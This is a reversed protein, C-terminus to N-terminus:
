IDTRWSHDISKPDFRWDWEKRPTEWDGYNAKLYGKTDHPINWIEDWINLRDFSRFHSEGVHQPILKRDFACWWAQGDRFAKTWIDLKVGNRRLSYEPVIPHSYIHDVVFGRNKFKNLDVKNIDLVTIDVDSEDVKQDRYALLLTGAELSFPINQEDLIKKTLKLNELASSM